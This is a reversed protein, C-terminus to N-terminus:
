ANWYEEEDEGEEIADELATEDRTPKYEGHEDYQDSGDEEDDEEPEGTADAYWDGGSESWAGVTWGLGSLKEEATEKVTEIEYSTDTGDAIGTDIRALEAGLGGDEWECVLVIHNPVNPDPNGSLVARYETVLSEKLIRNITTRAVGSRQHIEKKLFGEAHAERIIEDRNKIAALDREIRRRKHM